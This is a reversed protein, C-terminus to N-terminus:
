RREGLLVTLVAAEALLRSVPEPYDHRSLIADLAGGLQVVRGRVDLNAVEFPVVVDDGAFGFDGLKKENTKTLTETGTAPM